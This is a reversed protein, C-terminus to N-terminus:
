DQGAPLDPAAASIAGWEERLAAARQRAADAIPSGRLLEALQAESWLLPTSIRQPLSQLLAAWPSAEGQWKTDCPASLLLGAAIQLVARIKIPVRSIM